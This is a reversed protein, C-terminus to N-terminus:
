SASVPAEGKKDVVGIDLLASRTTGLIRIGPARVRARLAPVM